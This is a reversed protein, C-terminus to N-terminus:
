AKSKSFGAIYVECNRLKPGFLRTLLFKYGSVESELECARTHQMIIESKLYLGSLQDTYFKQVSM